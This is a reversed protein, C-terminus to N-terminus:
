ALRWVGRELWGHWSHTVISPYVTITGDAHETVRHIAPNLSCSSGDPAKVQWWLQREAGYVQELTRNIRGYDGPLNLGGHAFFGEATVALRRGTLM